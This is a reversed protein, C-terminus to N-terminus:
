SLILDAGKAAIMMTPANTNGSIIRPMVSADVVRLGETGIVRLQPDIVASDDSGMRCTGVPHYLLEVNDKVYQGLEVRGRIDPGPKLEPGRYADFPARDVIERAIEIGRALAAVEGPDSLCNTTIAPATAPDSSRALVTGRSTPNVLVPGITFAHGDYPTLGHGDFNVPAFHFQLDPEDLDPSSRVFACAEAIPSTLRGTRFLLWRAMEVVNEADDLTGPFRSEYVVGAVPHDQLNHGVGPNAVVTDIGISGLHAPDGIGSLQLLHPSGYTGAALIVERTAEARLIEGDKEFEVGTARKGTFLVRHALADTVVDLTPRALAPRLFADAASWRRGKRQNVQFFGVGDSNAGNFDRNPHLGWAMAAEVFARSLENPRKIDSVHLPGTSGHFPDEGRANSEMSRFYPLVSGWGWGASGRGEWADYDSQRGRVYLMANMSSSGGLMKGRPLYLSRESAGPEPETALAWDRHTKFLKSFAAPIAVEPARDAGGAEILTVSHRTSLAEALVCGASGGGVIVYEAVIVCALSKQVLNGTRREM